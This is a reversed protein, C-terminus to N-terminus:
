TPVNSIPSLKTRQSIAMFSVSLVARDAIQDKEGRGKM